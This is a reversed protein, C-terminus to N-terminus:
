VALHYVFVGRGSVLVAAYGRELVLRQAASLLAAARLNHVHEVIRLAQRKDVDGLEDSISSKYRYLTVVPDISISPVTPDFQTNLKITYFIGNEGGVVATDTEADGLCVGDFSGHTRFRREDHGNLLYM